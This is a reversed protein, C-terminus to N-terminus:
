YNKKKEFYKMCGEEYSPAVVAEVYTKMIEEATKMDVETNFGVVSGFAAQSDCDRAKIYIERLNEHPINQVAVGSPNVHKMVAVAPEEFYSVIRLSNNMDEVNTMSLGGKGTKLVKMDGVILPRSTPSYLAAPQHPNEGYRLSMSKKYEIKEDGIVLTLTEPLAEDLRTSYKKRISISM